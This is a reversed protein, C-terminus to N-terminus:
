QRLFSAYPQGAVLAQALREGQFRLAQRLTFRGVPEQCPIASEMHEEYAAFFIKMGEPTLCVGQDEPDDGFHRPTLVSRNVLDLVLRDVADVRFEALLDLVLSPREYRSQHFISTCSDFGLADLTIRFEASVLTYGLSLLANVPDPPPRRKRGAFPLDRTCALALGKFYARTSDGERELLAAFSSVNRVQELADSLQGVLEAFGTEPQNGRHQDLFRRQSAIKGAVITKAFALSAAEDDQAVQYQALCLSSNKLLPPALQLQLRGGQTLLVLQIKRSQAQALVQATAVMDGFLFINDVKAAEIALLEEDNQTVILRKGAKRLLIGQEILYLNTTM